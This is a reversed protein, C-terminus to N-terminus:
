ERPHAAEAPQVALRRGGFLEEHLADPLEVLEPKRELRCPRSDVEAARPPLQVPGVGSQLVQLLGSFRQLLLAGRGVERECVQPDRAEVRELEVVLAASHRGLAGGLDGLPGRGVELTDPSEGNDRQPVEAGGALEDQEIATVLLSEGLAVRDDGPVDEVVLDPVAHVAEGAPQFSGQLLDLV